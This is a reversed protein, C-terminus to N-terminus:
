EARLMRRAATPTQGMRAGFSRAFYAASGYGLSQAIQHVPAPTDALRRRAEALLRDQVLTSAGLETVTQCVRTLHTPTIGLRAAYAAVSPPSEPAAAIDREILATFGAVITEAKSQSWEAACERQHLRTVALALLTGYAAIAVDADKTAADAEGEIQGLLWTIEGQTQTTTARLLVPTDPLQGDFGPGFAVRHGFVPTPFEFRTTARAPVYLHCPGSFGRTKGCVSVRGQGRNVVYLLPTPEAHWDTLRWRGAQLIAALSSTSVPREPTTM